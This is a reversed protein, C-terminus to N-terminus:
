YISHVKTCLMIEKGKYITSGEQITYNPVTKVVKHQERQVLTQNTFSSSRM